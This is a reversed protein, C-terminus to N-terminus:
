SVTVSYGRCWQLCVLCNFWDRCCFWFAASVNVSKGADDGADDVADYGDFRLKM